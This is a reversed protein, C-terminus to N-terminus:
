PATEGCNWCAAFRGEIREGCHPCDWDAESGEGASLIEEILRSAVPADTDDEVLLQPKNETPYLGGFGISNFHTNRVICVIGREELVNRLHEIM